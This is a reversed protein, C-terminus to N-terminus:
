CHSNGIKVLIMLTENDFFNGPSGLNKLPVTCETVNTFFPRVGYLVAGLRSGVDVVVKGTLDPLVHHFLFKLELISFSHSIFETFLVTCLLHTTDNSNLCCCCCPWVWCMIGASHGQPAHAWWTSSDKTLWLQPLLKQEDQGRWLTFRCSWWWVPICRCSCDAQSESSDLAFLFLTYGWSTSCSIKFVNILNCYPPNNVRQIALTESPFMAELPLGTRLDEAINQLIVRQNDILCDDLDDTFINLRGHNPKQKVVM